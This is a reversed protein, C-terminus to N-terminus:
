PLAERKFDDPLDDSNHVFLRGREGAYPYTLFDKRLAELNIELVTDEPMYPSRKFRIQESLTDEVLKTLAEMTLVGTDTTASPKTNCAFTGAMAKEIEAKMMDSIRQKM